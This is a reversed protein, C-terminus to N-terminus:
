RSRQTRLPKDPMIRQRYLLQPSYFASKQFETKFEPLSKRHQLPVDLNNEPVTKQYDATSKFYAQQIDPMSKRYQIQDAKPVNPMSKCFEKNVLQLEPMSKRYNLRDTEYSDCINELSRRNDKTRTQFLFNERQHKLQEKELQLLEHEVKLVESDQDSLYSPFSQHQPYNPRFDPNDRSKEEKEVMEIIEREKKMIEEEESTM